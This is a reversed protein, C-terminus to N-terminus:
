NEGVAIQFWGILDYLEILQKSYYRARGSSINGEAYYNSGKIKIPQNLLNKDDTLIPDKM